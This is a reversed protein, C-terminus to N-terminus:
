AQEDELTRALAVDLGETRIRRDVYLLAIVAALFPVALVLGVTTGLSM